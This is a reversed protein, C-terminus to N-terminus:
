RRGGVRALTEKLSRWDLREASAPIALVMWQPDPHATFRVRDVRLAIRVRASDGAIEIRGPWATSEIWQWATYRVDLAAGRAPRIEVDVPLGRVDVSMRLSDEGEAWRARRFSDGRATEWRADVANWSAALARCGWEGPRRVGLSDEVSGLQVGLRRPPVYATLSDGRLLLDLATGFLSAVRARVRNPAVLAVDLQVAPLRGIEEADIWATAEIRVAALRAEREARQTEYRTEVGRLDLGAPGRATPACSALLAALSAAALSARVSPRLGRRDRGPTRRGARDIM